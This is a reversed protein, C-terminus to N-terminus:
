KIARLKADAKWEECTGNGLTQVRIEGCSAGCGECSATLWRFTSGGEFELGVVGCFPCPLLEPYPKAEQTEAM